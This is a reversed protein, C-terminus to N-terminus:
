ISKEVFEKFVTDPTADGDLVIVGKMERILNCESESPHQEWKKWEEITILINDRMEIRNWRIISSTDLYFVKGNADLIAQAENVYRVDTIICNYGIGKLKEILYNVWVNPDIDRMGQGVKQLIERTRKGKIKPDVHFLERAIEKLKNAFAFMPYGINRALTDKGSGMKGAIGIIM